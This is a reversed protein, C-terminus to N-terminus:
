WKYAVHSIGPLCHDRRHTITANIYEKVLLLDDRTKIIIPRNDKNTSWFVQEASYTYDAFMNYVEFPRISIRFSLKFPKIECAFVEDLGVWIDDMSRLHNYYYYNLIPEGNLRGTTIVM